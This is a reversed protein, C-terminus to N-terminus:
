TLCFGFGLMTEDKLNFLLTECAFRYSDPCSALYDVTSNFKTAKRHSFFSDFFMDFLNNQFHYLLLSLISLIYLRLLRHRFLQFKGLNPDFDVIWPTVRDECWSQKRCSQFFDNCVRLITYYEEFSFLIMCLTLSLSFTLIPSLPHVSLKILVHFVLIVIIIILIM